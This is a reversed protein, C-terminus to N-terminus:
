AGPTAPVNPDSAPTESAPAPTEAIPAAASADPAPADAPASGVIVPPQMLEPADRIRLTFEGVAPAIVDRLNLVLNGAVEPPVYFPDSAGVIAGEAAVIELIKPGPTTAGKVLIAYARRLIPTSQVVFRQSSPEAKGFPNAEVAALDKFYLVEFSLM